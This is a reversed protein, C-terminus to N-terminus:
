PAPVRELIRKRKLHRCINSATCAREANWRHIIDLTIRAWEKQWFKRQKYAFNKVAVDALLVVLCGGFMIGVANAGVLALRERVFDKWTITMDFLFGYYNGLYIDEDIVLELLEAYEDKGM